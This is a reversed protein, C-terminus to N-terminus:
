LTSCYSVYKWLYKSRYQEGKQLTVTKRSDEGAITVTGIDDKTPQIANGTYDKVYKITGNANNFGTSTASKIVNGEVRFTTSFSNKSQCM